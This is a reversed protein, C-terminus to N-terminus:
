QRASTSALLDAQLFSPLSPAPLGAAASHQGPLLLHLSSAAAAAPSRTAAANHLLAYRQQCPRLCHQCYRLALLLLALLLLLLLLAALLHQGSYYRLQLATM